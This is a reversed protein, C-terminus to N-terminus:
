HLLVPAPSVSEGPEVSAPEYGFATGPPLGAPAAVYESLTFVLSADRKGKMEILRVPALAAGGQALAATRESVLVPTDFARTAAEIRAAVNVVDGIITYHRRAGRAVIDGVYASGSSVGIGFGPNRWGAQDMMEQIDTAFRRAVARSAEVARTAASVTDGRWYALVGDGLVNDVVAGHARLTEIVEGLVVSLTAAAREPPVSEAYRTSGVLDFFLVTIDEVERTRAAVGAVDQHVYASVRGLHRDYAVWAGTLSTVYISALVAFADAVSVTRAGVPDLWAIDFILLAAFLLALSGAVPRLMPLLVAMVVSAVVVVNVMPSAAPWGGNEFVIMSFGASAGALTLAMRWWLGEVRSGAHEIFGM